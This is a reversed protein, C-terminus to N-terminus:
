LCVVNKRITKQFRAQIDPLRLTCHQQEWSVDLYGSSPPNELYISGDYGVITRSTDRMSKTAKTDRVQVTAAFPLPIGSKDRAILLISQTPYIDFHAIAGANRRGIIKQQTVPARYELPLNMIDVEVNTQNYPVLNNVFLFGNKDTVGVVQHEFLVPIDPIGETNVLLFAEGLQRTAYFHNNFLGLSGYLSGFLASQQGTRNIGLQIEGWNGRRQINALFDRNKDTELYVNGGWGNQNSEINRNINVLDKHGRADQNRQLALYNRNNSLPVTININTSKSAQHDLSHNFGASLIVSEHLAKTWAVSLYEARNNTFYQAVWKAAITGTFPTAWSVFINDQRMGTHHDSVSTIDRYEETRELHNASINLSRNNWQWGIGWQFGDAAHYRGWSLDSHILGISPSILYNLGSGVNHLFAGQETHSELTLQDVLGYHLNGVTFLEPAYRFSNQNYEKRILGSNIEWESIGTALLRNSGFFSADIVRQMGNIDTIVVLANDKGLSVPATSLTFQGPEVEQSDRKAGQIFLDVTSPLIVSDHLIDRTHPNFQPQSEYNKSITFGGFRVSRTWPQAGTYGDGLTLTLLKEPDDYNWTTMLRTTNVKWHQSNTQFLHSNFSTSFFDNGTGLTRWDTVASLYKSQKLQEGFLNYNVALGSVQPSYNTENQQISPVTAGIRQRVLLRNSDVHLHIKQNLSDYDQTFGVTSALKIYHDTVPLDELRISLKQADQSNISLVGKLYRFRYLGEMPQENIIVALYLIEGDFIDGWVVMSVLLSLLCYLTSFCFKIPSKM